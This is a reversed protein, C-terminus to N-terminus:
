VEVARYHGVAEPLRMDVDDYIANSIFENVLELLWAFKGLRYERREVSYELSQATSQM